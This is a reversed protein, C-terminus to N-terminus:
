EGSEYVVKGNRLAERYVRGPVDGVEALKAETVV